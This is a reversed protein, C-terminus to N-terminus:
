PIIRSFLPLLPTTSIYILIKTPINTPIPDVTTLSTCVEIPALVDLYRNESNYKLEHVDVALADTLDDLCQVYGSALLQLTRPRSLTLRLSHQMANERLKM